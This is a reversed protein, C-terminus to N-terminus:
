QAGSVVSCVWQGGSAWQFEVVLRLSFFCFARCCWIVCLVNALM